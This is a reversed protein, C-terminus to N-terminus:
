SCQVILTPLIWTTQTKLLLIWSSECFLLFFQGYDLLGVVSLPTNLPLCALCNGRVGTKLSGGRPTERTCKGWNQYFVIIWEYLISRPQDYTLATSEFPRWCGYYRTLIRSESPGGVAVAIHLYEVKLSAGLLLQLTYASQKWFPRWSGSYHALARNELPGWWCRYHTFLSFNWVMKLVKNFFSHTLIQELFNQYSEIM